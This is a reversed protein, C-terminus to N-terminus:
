IFSPLLSPLFISMKDKKALYIAFAAGVIPVAAAASAGVAVTRKRRCEAGDAWKTGVFIALPLPPLYCGVAVVVPRDLGM